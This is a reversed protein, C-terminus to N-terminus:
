GKAKVVLSDTAANGAADTAQATVALKPKRGDRLAAEVKRLQKRKLELSIREATGAAVPETAPKVKGQLAVTCDEQPCSATVVVAGRDAIKQKAKGALDFSVETDAPEGGGGGGGAGGGGGGGGGPDPTPEPQFSVDECSPDLTDVGARDARVTDVETGCSAADAGGDRVDVADPGALASVTDDGGLGTIANAMANGTLLDAFPSGTVNEFQVLTDNGAGGTAGGTQLNASVAAPAEAYSVTDTENGGNLSDNGAGGDLTDNGDSPLTNPFIGGSLFDAGGRGRLTDGGAGGRLENPGEDGTLTDALKWGTVGEVQVLTDLGLGTDQPASTGLDVTIPVVDPADGLDYDAIDNTGGGFIADNGRGGALESEGVYTLLNDEGDGAVLSDFGSGSGGELWDGGEGGILDIDPTGTFPAGAPQGSQGQASLTDPGPGGTLTLFHPVSPLSLDIDNVANWNLGGNGLFWQDADAGGHIQLVSDSRGKLDVTVDISGLGNPGSPDFIEFHAGAGNASTDTARISDTGAVTPTGGSCTEVGEGTVRIEGGDVVQISADDAEASMEIKLDDFLSNFECSVAANAGPAAALVAISAALAALVIAVKPRARM